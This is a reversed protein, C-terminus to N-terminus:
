QFSSHLFSPDSVKIKSLCFFFHIASFAMWMIIKVLFILTIKECTIKWKWTYNLNSKVLFFDCPMGATSMKQQVKCFMDSAFLILQFWLPDSITRLGEFHSSLAGPTRRSKTVCPKGRITETLVSCLGEKGNRQFTTNLHSYGLDSEAIKSAILLSTIKTQVLSIKTTSGVPWEEGSPLLEM